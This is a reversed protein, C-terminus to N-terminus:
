VFVDLDGLTSAGSEADTAISRQPAFMNMGLGSLNTRVPMEAPTRADLDVDLLEVRGKAPDVRVMDGTEVRSLPGGLLAEPHM